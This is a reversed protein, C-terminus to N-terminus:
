ATSRARRSSGLVRGEARHTSSARRASRRAPADVHPAAAGRGVVSFSRERERSSACFREARPFSNQSRNRTTSRVGMAADSTRERRPPPLDIRTGLRRRRARAARSTRDARREVDASRSRVHVDRAREGRPRNRRRWSAHPTRARSTGDGTTRVRAERAVELAMSEVEPATRGRVGSPIRGGGDRCRARCTPARGTDRRRRSFMRERTKESLAAISAFSGAASAASRASLASSESAALAVM